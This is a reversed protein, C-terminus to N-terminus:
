SSRSCFFLSFSRCVGAPVSAFRVGPRSRLLRSPLGAAARGAGTGSIECAADAGPGALPRRHAQPVAADSDRGATSDWRRSLPRTVDRRNNPISAWFSLRIPGLGQGM